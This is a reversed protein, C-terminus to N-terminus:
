GKEDLLRQVDITSRTRGRLMSIPCPPTFDSIADALTQIKILFGEFGEFPVERVCTRLKIFSKAYTTFAFQSMEEKFSYKIFDNCGKVVTGMAALCAVLTSNELIPGATMGAAVTLSALVNFLANYFKFHNLM